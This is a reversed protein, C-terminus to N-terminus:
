RRARRGRLGRVTISRETDRYVRAQRVLVSTALTCLRGAPSTSFWTRPAARRASSSCVISRDRAADDLEGILAFRFEDRSGLRAIRVSVM